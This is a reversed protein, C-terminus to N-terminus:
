SAPTSPLNQTTRADERAQDLAPAGGGSAGELLRLRHELQAVRLVLEEYESRSVYGLERLLATLNESATSGVRAREERLWVAAAEALNRLSSAPEAM